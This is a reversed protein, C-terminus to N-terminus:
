AVSRVRDAASSTKASGNCSKNSSSKGEDHRGRTYSDPFMERFPVQCARAIAEAGARSAGIIGQRCASDYLGADRAIGTLTLGRKALEARIEIRDWKKTATM